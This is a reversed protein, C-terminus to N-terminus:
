EGENINSSPSSTLESTSAIKHSALWRNLDLTDYVVTKGLKIFAPGGGYVRLKELTSKACGCYEAAKPTRLRKPYESHHMQSVGQHWHNNASSFGPFTIEWGSYDHSM